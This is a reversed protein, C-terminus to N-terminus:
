GAPAPPRLLGPPPGPGAASPTRRLARRASGQAPARDAGLYRPDPRRGRPSGLANPARSSNRRARQGRRGASPAAADRPLATGASGREGGPLAGGGPPGAGAARPD